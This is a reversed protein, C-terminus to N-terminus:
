GALAAVDRLLLALDQPRSLRHDGAKVLTLCLDQTDLREALELSLRWPVEPDAQGHLIRVPCSVGIARGLLLHAAGEEILARSFRAPEGGYPSPREFLGHRALVAREDATITEALAWQTFDPAPAVLVLGAVRQPEALALLLAIWGGMSSGVVLAPGDLLGLMARADGLWGGITQDEFRGDSHGCGAWDFRLMAQGSAAAWDALAQAKTGTMDSAYGPLFLIAPERGPLRELALRRGPAVELHAIGPM